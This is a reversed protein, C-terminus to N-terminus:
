LSPTESIKLAEDSQKRATNDEVALPITETGKGTRKGRTSRPRVFEGAEQVRLEM